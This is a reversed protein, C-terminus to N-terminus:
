FIYHRIEEIEYDMVSTEIDQTELIEILTSKAATLREIANDRKLVIRSTCVHENYNEKSEAIKINLWDVHGAFDVFVCYDTQYNIAMALQILEAILKQKELKM